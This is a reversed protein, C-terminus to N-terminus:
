MNNNNEIEGDAREEEGGEGFISGGGRLGFHDNKFLQCMLIM